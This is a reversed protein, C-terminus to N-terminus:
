KAGLGEQDNGLSRQGETPAAGYCYVLVEQM